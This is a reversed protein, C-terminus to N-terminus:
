FLTNIKPPKKKGRHGSITNPQPSDSMGNITIYSHWHTYTHWHNALTTQGYLASTWQCRCPIHGATEEWLSALPWKKIKAQDLSLQVRDKYVTRRAAARHCSLHVQTWKSIEPSPPFFALINEVCIFMLSYWVFWQCSLFHLFFFFFLKQKLRMWLITFVHPGSLQVGVQYQFLRGWLSLCRQFTFSSVRFKHNNNQKPKTELILVLIKSLEVCFFFVPLLRDMCCYQSSMQQSM